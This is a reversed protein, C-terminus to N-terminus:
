RCLRELRFVACVFSGMEDGTPCYIKEFTEPVLMFGASSYMRVIEDGPENMAVREFAFLTGGIKLCEALYGAYKAADANEHMIRISMVTDCFAKLSDGPQFFLDTPMQLRDALASATKLVAKSIDTGYVRRERFHRATFLTIIGNGCGVDLIVSGFYESYRCIRAMVARMVHWDYYSSCLLSLELSSNVYDVIEKQRGSVSRGSRRIAEDLDFLRNMEDIIEGGKLYGFSKEIAKDLYEAPRLGIERMYTRVELPLKSADQM